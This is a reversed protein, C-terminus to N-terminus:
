HPTESTKQYVGLYLRRNIRVWRRENWGANLIERRMWYKSIDAGFLKRVFAKLFIFPDMPKVRHSQVVLWGRSVRRIEKLVKERVRVPIHENLFRVCLVCDLANDKFPLEEADCQVLPPMTGRSSQDRVLVGMMEMSIDAGFYLFGKQWFLDSFRGTGCALDLIKKIEGIGEIARALAARTADNERKGKPNSFRKSFYAEAVPKNRYRFKRRYPKM